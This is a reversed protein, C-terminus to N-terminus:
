ARTVRLTLCAQGRCPVVTPSRPATPPARAVTGLGDWGTPALRADGMRAALRPSRVAAGRHGTSCGEGGARQREGGGRGCVAPYPTPPSPAGARAAGMSTPINAFLTPNGLRVAQRTLCARGSPDRVRSGRLPFSPATTPVTVLSPHRHTCRRGNQLPSTHRARGRRFARCLAAQEPRVTRPAGPAGAWGLDVLDFEVRRAV